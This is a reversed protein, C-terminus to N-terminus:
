FDKGLILTIVSKLEPLDIRIVSWVKELNIDFYEHAIFNRLGRVQHRPYNYKQLLENSVHHIAEGIVSFQFLVAENIISKQVFADEDLCKTYSEIKEIAQLM